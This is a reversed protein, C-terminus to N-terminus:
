NEVGVYKSSGFGLIMLFIPNLFILGLTFATGKGFSKALMCYQYIQIIMSLIMIIFHVITNPVVTLVYLIILALVFWPSIGSIKFLMVQNYIPIISKWGKEGAKKFIKWVAIIQLIWWVIVFISLVVLYTELFSSIAKVTAPNINGFYQTIVQEISSTDM